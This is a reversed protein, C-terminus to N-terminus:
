KCMMVYTILEPELMAAYNIMAQTARQGDDTWRQANNGRHAGGTASRGIIMLFADFIALGCVTGESFGAFKTKGFRWVRPTEAVVVM